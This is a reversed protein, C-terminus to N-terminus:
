VWKAEQLFHRSAACSRRAVRSIKLPTPEAASSALGHNAVRTIAPMAVRSLSNVSAALAHSATGFNAKRSAIADPASKSRVLVQNYSFGEVAGALCGAAGALWSYRNSAGSGGM